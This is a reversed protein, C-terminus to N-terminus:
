GTSSHTRKNADFECHHNPCLVKLNSPNNILSIMTTLPYSCIDKIHATEVHKDYGCEECSIRKLAKTINRARMRVLAFASSKHHKTYVAQELTMDKGSTRCDFCFRRSTPIAVKCIRCNGELKRKPKNRNSLSVFCSRSCFNHKTQNIESLLKKFKIQCNECPVELKTPM